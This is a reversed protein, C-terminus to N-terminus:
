RQQQKSYVQYINKQEKFTLNNFIILMYILVYLGWHVKTVLTVHM